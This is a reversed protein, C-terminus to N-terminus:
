NTSASASASTALRGEAQAIYSLLQFQQILPIAGQMCAMMVTKSTAMVMRMTAVGVAVGVIAADNVAIEQVDRVISEDSRKRQGGVRAGVRGVIHAQAGAPDEEM